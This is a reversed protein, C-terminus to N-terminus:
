ILLARRRALISITLALAWRKDKMGTTPKFLIREVYNFPDQFVREFASIGDCTREDDLYQLQTGRQALLDALVVGGADRLNHLPIEALWRPRESAM